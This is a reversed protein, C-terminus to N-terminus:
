EERMLLVAAVIVIVLVALTTGNPKYPVPAGTNMTSPAVPAGTSTQTSGGVIAAFASGLKSFISLGAWTQPNVQTAGPYPTAIAASAFPPDSTGSLALDASCNPTEWLDYTSQTNDEATDLVLPSGPRVDGSLTTPGSFGNATDVLGSYEVPDFAHVIAM